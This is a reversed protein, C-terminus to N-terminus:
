AAMAPPRGSIPWKPQLRPPGAYTFTATLSTSNAPDSPAISVGAPLVNITVVAPASQDGTPDTAQYIVFGHGHLGTEAYLRLDWGRPTDTRSERPRPGTVLSATFTDANPDLRQAACRDPAVHGSRRERGHHLHRGHTEPPSNPPVVAIVFSNTVSLGGPDTATVRVGIQGPTGSPTATDDDTGLVGDETSLVSKFEGAGTAPRIRSPWAATSLPQGNALTATYTLANSATQHDSFILAFPSFYDFTQGLVATTNSIGNFQAPQRDPATNQRALRSRPPPESNAARHLGQRRCLKDEGPGWRSRTSPLPRSPQKTAGALQDLYRETSPM